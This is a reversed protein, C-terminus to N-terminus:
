ADRGYRFRRLLEGMRKPGFLLFLVFIFEIATAVMGAIQELSLEVPVEPNRQSVFWIVAWYSVDSLVSFALYLGLIKFGAVELQSATASEVEVEGQEKFAVLGRGVTFPFKWLLVAVIFLVVMGTAYFYAVGEWEQGYFYPVLSLVNRLAYLALVIAFLRVALGVIHELKM